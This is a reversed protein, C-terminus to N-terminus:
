SPYKLLVSGKLGHYDARTVMSSVEKWSPTGDCQTRIEPIDASSDMMDMEHQCLRSFIILEWRQRVQVFKLPHNLFHFESTREKEQEEKSACHRRVLPILVATFFRRRHLFIHILIASYFFTKATIRICNRVIGSFQIHAPFSKM